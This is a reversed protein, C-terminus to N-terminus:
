APFAALITNVLDDGASDKPVLAIAGAARAREVFREGAHMSVVIVKLGRQAAILHPLVQLGNMDPMSIDLLVLDVEHARVFELAQRGTHAEGVVVLGRAAELLRKIGQRVLRHDDAILIRIPQNM